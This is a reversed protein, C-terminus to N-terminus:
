PFKLLPLNPYHEPTIFAWLLTWDIQKGKLLGLIWTLVVSTAYFFFLFPVVITNLKRILFSKFGGYTKFFLGSLLFFLPLYFSKLCIQGFYDNQFYFHIHVFVVFIMCLGKATDIYDIRGGMNHMVQNM